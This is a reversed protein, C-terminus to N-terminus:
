LVLQEMREIANGTTQELIQHHAVAEQGAIYASVADLLEEKSKFYHYITGKAIDLERMVDRMTTNEYGKALFLRCGAQLIEERREDPKKVIRVM